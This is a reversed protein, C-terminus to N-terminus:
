NIVSRYSYLKESYWLFTGSLTFISLAVVLCSPLHTALELEIFHGKYEKVLATHKRSQFWLEADTCKAKPREVKRKEAGKKMINSCLIVYKTESVTAWICSIHLFLAYSYVSKHMNIYIYMISPYICQFYILFCFCFHRSYENGRM